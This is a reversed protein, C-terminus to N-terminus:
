STAGLRVPVSVEATVPSTKTVSWNFDDTTFSQGYDWTRLAITVKPPATANGLVWVVQLTVPLEPHISTTVEGNIDGNSRMIDAEAYKGPKPEAAIGHLFSGVGFSEKGRNTVRMRVVLINAPPDFEHLKFQGARADTIQVDFLGQDVVQGAKTQAPGGGRSRLGGFVGAVAVLVALVGLVVLFVPWRRRTPAASGDSDAVREITVPAGVTQHSLDGLTRRHGPIGKPWHSTPPM